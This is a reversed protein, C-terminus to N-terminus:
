EENILEIIKLKTKEDFENSKIIRSTLTSKIEKATTMGAISHVVITGHNYGVINLLNDNDKDLNDLYNEPLFDKIYPYLLSWTAKKIRNNKGSLYRSFSNQNIGTLRELETQSGHKDIAMRIAKIITNDIAISAKDM